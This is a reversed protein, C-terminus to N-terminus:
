KSGNIHKHMTALLDDYNINAMVATSCSLALAAVVGAHQAPLDTHISCKLQLSKGDEM